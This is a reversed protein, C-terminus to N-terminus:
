KAAPQNTVTNITLQDRLDPFEKYIGAAEADRPYYYHFWYAAGERNRMDTDKMQRLFVPLLTEKDAKSDILYTLGEDRREPNKDFTWQVFLPWVPKATDGLLEFGFGARANYKTATAFPFPLWREAFWRVAAKKSESDRVSEWKLLLPIANTGIHRVANSAAQWRPDSEPGHGHPAAAQQATIADEIWASLARGKYRPEAPTTLYIILSAALIAALVFLGIRWIKKGGM